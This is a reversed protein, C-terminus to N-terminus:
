MGRNGFASFSQDKNVSPVTGATLVALQLYNRGNLPLQNMTTDTIVQGQTNTTTDVLPADESITVTQITAGLALNLRLSVDETVRLVVGKRLLSKFGDKEVRVDYTGPPLLPVPALGAENTKLVRVVAGTESGTITVRAENVLAESADTVIVDIQGT